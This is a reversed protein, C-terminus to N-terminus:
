IQVLLNQIKSESITVAMNMSALGAANIVAKL